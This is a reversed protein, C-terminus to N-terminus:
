VIFIYMCVCFLYCSLLVTMKCLNVDCTYLIVMSVFTLKEIYEGKINICKTHRSIWMDFMEVYWSESFGSLIM